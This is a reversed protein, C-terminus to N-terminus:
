PQKVSDLASFFESLMRPSYCDALRGKIGASRIRRTTVKIRNCWASDLLVFDCLQCAPLAHVFDVADNGTFPQKPDGFPEILLEEKFIDILRMGSRPMLKKRDNSALVHERIVTVATVIDRKMQEFIPLLIDRHDIADSIFRHSNLKGTILARRALDELMWHKDPAEAPRPLRPQEERFYPTDDVADIVYFNPFAKEILSEVRHATAVDQMACFESLNVQSFLWTGQAAHLAAIFRSGLQEEDSFRRVAWHDLYVVPRVLRQRLSLGGIANPAITMAM